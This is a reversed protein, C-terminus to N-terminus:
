CHLLAKLVLLYFLATYTYCKGNVWVAMAIYIYIYNCYFNHTTLWLHTNSSLSRTCVSSWIRKLPCHMSVLSKLRKGNLPGASNLWSLILRTFTLSSDLLFCEEKATQKFLSPPHLKLHIKIQPCELFLLKKRNEWGTYKLKLKM